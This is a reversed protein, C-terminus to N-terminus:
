RCVGVSLSGWITCVLEGADFHLFVNDYNDIIIQPPLRHSLGFSTLLLFFCVFFFCFNHLLLFCLCGMEICELYNCPSWGDLIVGLDTLLLIFKVRISKGYMSIDISELRGKRRWFYLKGFAKYECICKIWRMGIARFIHKFRSLLHLARNLLDM